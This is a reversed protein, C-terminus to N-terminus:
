DSAFRLAIVQGRGLEGFRAYADPALLRQYRRNEELRIVRDQAQLAFIRAALAIGVLALAMIFGILPEARGQSKDVVIILRYLRWLVHLLLVPMLVFHFPPVWRAHNEFNQPSQDAM